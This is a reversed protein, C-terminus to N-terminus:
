FSSSSNRRRKWRELLLAGSHEVSLGMAVIRQKKLRQRGDIMRREGNEVHERSTGMSAEENALLRLLNDRESPHLTGYLKSLYIEVNGEAAFVHLPTMPPEENELAEPGPMSRRRHLRRGEEHVILANTGPRRAPNVLSEVFQV